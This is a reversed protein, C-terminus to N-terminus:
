EGVDQSATGDARRRKVASNPIPDPTESASNGGFWLLGFADRRASVRLSVNPSVLRPRRTGAGPKGLTFTQNQTKSSRRSPVPQREAIGTKKRIPDFGRPRNTGTSQVCQQAQM